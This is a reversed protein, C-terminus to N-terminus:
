LFTGRVSKVKLLGDQSSFPACVGREGMGRVGIM